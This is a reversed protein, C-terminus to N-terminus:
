EYQPKPTLEIEDLSVLGIKLAYLTAQVRGPLGLKILLHSVHTKVTKESVTLRATIEKNSLGHAILKLVEIERPTLGGGHAIGAADLAARAADADQSHIEIVM